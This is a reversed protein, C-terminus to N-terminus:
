HALVVDLTVVGVAVEASETWASVEASLARPEKARARVVIDLTELPGIEIDFGLTLVGEGSERGLPEPAISMVDLVAALNEDLDLAALRISRPLDNRVRCVIAVMEGVDVVDPYALKLVFGGQGPSVIARRETSPPASALDRALRDQFAILLDRIVPEEDDADAGAAILEDLSRDAALARRVIEFLRAPSVITSARRFREQGVALRTRSTLEETYSVLDVLQTDVRSLFAARAADAKSDPSLAGRLTGVCVRTTELVDILLRLASELSGPRAREKIEVRAVGLADDGRAFLRAVTLSNSALPGETATPTTGEIRPSTALAFADALRARVFVTTELLKEARRRVPETRDEESM